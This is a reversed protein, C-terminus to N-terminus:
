ATRRPFVQFGTVGIAQFVGVVDERDDVVFAVNERIADESGFHSIALQIKMKAEPSFDDNDRMLLESVPIAEQVLWRMTIQRFKEPRATMAVIKCGHGHLVRALFAIDELPEDHLSATHYDDWSVHGIMEDRHFASSLTHDIDILITDRSSTM